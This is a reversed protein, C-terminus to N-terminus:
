NISKLLEEFYKPHSVVEIMSDAYKRTEACTIYQNGKVEKALEELMETLNSYYAIGTNTLLNNSNGFELVKVAQNKLLLYRENDKCLYAMVAYSIIALSLTDIDPNISLMTDTTMYRPKEESCASVSIVFSILLIKVFNVM